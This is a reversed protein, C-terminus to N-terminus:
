GFCRELRDKDITGLAATFATHISQSTPLGGRADELMADLGDVVQAWPEALQPPALARLKTYTEKAKALEDQNGDILEKTDIGPDAMLADCYTQRDFGQNHACGALLPMTGLVLGLSLALALTLTHRPAPM